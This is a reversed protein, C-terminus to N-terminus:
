SDGTYFLLNQILKHNPEETYLLSREASGKLKLM